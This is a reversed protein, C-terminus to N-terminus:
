WNRRTRLMEYGKRATPYLGWAILVGLSDAAWDLWSASRPPLFYQLIEILGGLGSLGPLVVWWPPCWAALALAALTGFALLHHLKDENPITEPLSLPTLTLFLVAILCLVFAAAAVRAAQPPLREYM